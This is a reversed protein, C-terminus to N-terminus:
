SDFGGSRGYTFIKQLSEPFFKLFEKRLHWVGNRGVKVDCRALFLAKLEILPKAEVRAFQILSGTLFTKSAFIKPLYTDSEVLTRWRPGNNGISFNVQVDLGLSDYNGLMVRAELGETNGRDSKCWETHSGASIFSIGVVGQSSQILGQWDRKPSPLWAGSVTVELATTQPPVKSTVANPM